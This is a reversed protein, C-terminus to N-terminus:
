SDCIENYKSLTARQIQLAGIELAGGTIGSKQSTNLKRMANQLIEDIKIWNQSVEEVRNLPKNPEGSGIVRAKKDKCSIEVETSMSSGFAEYSVVGKYDVRPSCGIFFTTITSFILTQIALSKKM